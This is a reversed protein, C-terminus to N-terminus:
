VGAYYMDRERVISIYIIDRYVCVFVRVCVCVQMCVCAVRTRRGAAHTTDLSHAVIHGRQLGLLLGLLVPEVIDDEEVGLSAGINLLHSRSLFLSLTCAHMCAHMCGDM